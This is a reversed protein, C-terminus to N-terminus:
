MKKAVQPQDSTTVGPVTGYYVGLCEKIFMAVGCIDDQWMCRFCPLQMSELCAKIDALSPLPLRKCCGLKILQLDACVANGIAAYLLSECFFEHFRWLQTKLTM